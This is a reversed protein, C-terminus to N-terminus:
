PDAKDGHVDGERYRSHMGHLLRSAMIVADAASRFKKLKFKKLQKISGSLHHSSLSTDDALIWPHNLLEESTWRSAVDVTLMKSIFDKSDASMEAWYEDDYKYEGKKILAFLKSAPEADFPLYGGLLVYCIVGMSWIDAAVGYRERRLVEPAVYAPTGVM